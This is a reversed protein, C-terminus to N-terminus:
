MPRRSHASVQHNSIQDEIEEEMSLDEMLEELEGIDIVDEEEFSIEEDPGGQAAQGGSAVAFTDSPMARSEFRLVQSAAGKGQRLVNLKRSRAWAQQRM